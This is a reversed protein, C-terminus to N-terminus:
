WSMEYFNNKRTKGQRFCYRCFRTKSFMMGFELGVLFLITKLKILDDCTLEILNENMYDLIKTKDVFGTKKLLNLFDLSKYWTKEAM